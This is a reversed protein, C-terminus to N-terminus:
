NSLERDTNLEPNRQAISEFETVLDSIITPNNNVIM